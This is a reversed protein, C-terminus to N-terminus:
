NAFWEPNKEESKRVIAACAYVNVDRYCFAEVSVDLTKHLKIKTFHFKCNQQFFFLKNFRFLLM